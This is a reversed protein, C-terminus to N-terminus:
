IEGNEKLWKTFDAGYKCHGRIYSLATIFFMGSYGVGEMKELAKKYKLETDLTENLIIIVDAINEIMEEFLGIDNLDKNYEYPEILNNKIFLLWKSPSKVPITLLKGILKDNPEKANKKLEDKIVPLLNLLDKRDMLTKDFKISVIKDDNEKDKVYEMEGFEVKGDTEKAYFGFYMDVSYGLSKLYDGTSGNFEKYVKEADIMM